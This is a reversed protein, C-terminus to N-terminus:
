LMPFYRFVFEDDLTDCHLFDRYNVSSLRKTREKSFLTPYIKKAGKPFALLARHALTPPHVISVDLDLTLSFIEVAGEGLIALGDAEQEGGMAFLLGGQAKELFGNPLM